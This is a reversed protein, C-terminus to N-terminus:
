GAPAGPFIIEIEQFIKRRGGVDNFGAAVQNTTCVINIECILGSLM